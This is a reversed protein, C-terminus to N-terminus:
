RVERDGTSPPTSGVRQFRGGYLSRRVRPKPAVPTETEVVAVQPPEAKNSDTKEPTSESRPKEESRERRDRNERPQRAKNEGDARDEGNGGGEGSDGGEGDGEGDGGRGRRRRGGRRRRRRKKRPVGDEDVDDSADADHPGSETDTEGADADSETLTTAAESVAESEEAPPSFFARVELIRDAPISSQYGKLELDELKEAVADLIDRSKVGLEKALAHVRIPETPVPVAEVTGEGEGEGGRGRGRRRRRRRKRGDGGDEESGSEGGTEGEAEAGTAEENTGDLIEDDGEEDEDDFGGALAIAVVDAPEPKRRRRRRRRGGGGESAPQDPNADPDPELIEVPLSEVDPMTLRPLRSLDLDANRDDYAYVDFRDGPIQDSIRIDVQGGSSRELADIRRRHAALLASAIRAGCVLEIRAIKENALLRAARRVADAAVSDANRIEGLGSCSNCPSFYQSRISPRIRQRTM